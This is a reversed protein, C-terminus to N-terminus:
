RDNIKGKLLEYLTHITLIELSIEGICLIRLTDSVTLNFINILLIMLM